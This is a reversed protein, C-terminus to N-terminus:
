HCHTHLKFVEGALTGLKAGRVGVLLVGGDAGDSGHLAVEPPYVPVCVGCANFGVRRLFRFSSSEAGGGGLTASM